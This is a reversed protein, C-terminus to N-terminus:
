TSVKEIRGPGTILTLTDIADIDYRVTELGVRLREEEADIYSQFRAQLADSENACAFSSTLTCARKYVTSLYKEVARSNAPLIPLEKVPAKDEPSPDESDSSPHPHTSSHEEIVDAEEPTEATSAGEPPGETTSTEPAPSAPKTQVTHSTIVEDTRERAIASIPKEDHPIAQMAFMKGLLVVVKNRYYTATM